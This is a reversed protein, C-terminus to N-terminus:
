FKGGFISNLDQVYNVATPAPNVLLYKTPLLHVRCLNLFFLETFINSTRYMCVYKRCLLVEFSYVYSCSDVIRSFYFCLYEKIKGMRVTTYTKPIVGPDMPKEEENMGTDGHTAM